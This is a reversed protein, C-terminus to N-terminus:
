ICHLRIVVRFCKGKAPTVLLILMINPLWTGSIIQSMKIIHTMHVTMCEYHVLQRRYISIQMSVPYGALLGALIKHLTYYPAWITPYTTLSELLIFQEESCASLFGYAAGMNNYLADQCKGLETVIYDM